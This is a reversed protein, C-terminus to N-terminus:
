RRGLKAFLGLLGGIVVVIIAIGFWGWTMPTGVTVRLEMEERAGKGSATLTVVYDGPIAKAKPKITVEVKEPKMAETLPPLSPIREPKFSVEWEKPKSSFFSIDLISDSGENWLYITFHKEQGALAKVNRTEGRGLVEAETGLKLEYTGTVEAVLEITTMEEGAKATFIAKYKGKKVGPPPILVFRLRETRDADVKISSIRKEREYRPTCYAGWGYPIEAGLDFVRPEDAKNKLDLDFEFNKGAPQKLSPYETTLEAGKATEAEKPKAGKPKLTVIVEQSRSLQGDETTGQLIFKYDGEAADEPPKAKFDLELSNHEGECSLHVAQVEYRPCCKEFRAGWGEPGSISLLIDEDKEGTNTIRVDLTIEGDKEVVIHTYETSISFGRKAGQAGAIGSSGLSVLTALFALAALVRKLRDM